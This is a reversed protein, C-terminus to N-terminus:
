PPRALGRPRHAPLPAPRAASPSASRQGRLAARRRGMRWPSAVGTVALLTWVLIRVDLSLSGRRAYIRDIRAKRPICRRRYTAETQRQDACGALLREERRFLMVTALGTLGPRCALVRAYLDPSARVHAPLPPRPGVLSMDGRLVNLIQPTEDLRLRRLTRGLRTVRARAAGGTAGPEDNAGAPAMTRFKLLAFARDPTRMRPSVYFVPRGDAVLVALAVAAMMPLLVPLLLLAVILDFARKATTM